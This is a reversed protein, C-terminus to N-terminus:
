GKLNKRIHTNVAAIIFQAKEVDDPGVPYCNLEFVIEKSKELYIVKTIPDYAWAQNAYNLDQSKRRKITANM